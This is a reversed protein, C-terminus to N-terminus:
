VFVAALSFAACLALTGAALVKKTDENVRRYAEESAVGRSDTHFALADYDQYDCLDEIVDLTAVKLGNKALAAGTDNAGTLDDAIIVTKM